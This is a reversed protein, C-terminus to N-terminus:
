PIILEFVDSVELWKDAIRASIKYKGPQAYPVAIQVEKLLPNGGIPSVQKDGFYINAYNISEGKLTVVSGIKGSHPAFGTYSPEAVDITFQKDHTYYNNNFVRAIRFSQKGGALTPINFTLLGETAIGYARVTSFNDFIIYYMENAIFNGTVQVKSGISTGYQTVNDPKFAEVQFKNKTTIEYNPSQITLDYVGDPLDPIQFIFKSNNDFPRLTVPSGNVVYKVEGFIDASHLGSLRVHGNPHVRPSDFTISHADPRKIQLPQPFIVTDRGNFYGLRYSDGSLYHIYDRVFISSSYPIIRNGIIVSTNYGVGSLVPLKLYNTWSINYSAPPGLRSLINVKTLYERIQYGTPQQHPILFVHLEAKNIFNGNVKFTLSNENNSIQFPITGAQDELQLYYKGQIGRFDGKVTIEDGPLVQFLGQGPHVKFKPQQVPYFSVTSSRFTSDGITYYYSFQFGNKLLVTLNGKLPYTVRGSVLKTGLSYNQSHSVTDNYYAINFGHDKVNEDKVYSVNAILNIHDAAIYEIGQIETQSKKTDEPQFNDVKECSFLLALFLPVVFLAFYKSM